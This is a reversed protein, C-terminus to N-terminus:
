GPGNISVPNAAVDAWPQVRRGASVTPDGALWFRWPREVARRIGIRPGASVAGVPGAPGRLWVRESGLEEGCDGVDVALTRGVCGPGRAWAAPAVGPRRRAALEQGAVVEGARILVAAAAGDQECVLNLARHLGYSIYVYLRGPPGFMAANRATPGRWAHSAPDDAGRYAEVETLRLEVAGAPGAVTLRCGLLGPAVLDARQRLDVPWSTAM